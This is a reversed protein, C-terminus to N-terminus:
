TAENKPDSHFLRFFSDRVDARWNSNQDYTKWDELWSLRKWSLRVSQLSFGRRGRKDRVSRFDVAAYWRFIDLNWVEISHSLYIHRKM